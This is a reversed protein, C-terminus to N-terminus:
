LSSTLSSPPCTVERCNDVVVTERPFWESFRVDRVRKSTSSVDLHNRGSAQRREVGGGQQMHCKPSTIHPHLPIRHSQQLMTLRTNSTAIAHWVRTTITDPLLCNTPLSFCPMGHWALPCVQSFATSALVCDRYTALYTPSRGLQSPGDVRNLEQNSLGAVM